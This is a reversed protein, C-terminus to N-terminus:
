DYELYLKKSVLEDVESRRDKPIGMALGDYAENSEKTNLWKLTALAYDSVSYGFVRGIILNDTHEKSLSSITMLDKDTCEGKKAVSLLFNVKDLISNLAM